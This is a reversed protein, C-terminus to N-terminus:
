PASGLQPFRDMLGVVAFMMATMMQRAAQEHALEFRRETGALAVERHKTYFRREAVLGSGSTAILRIEIDAEPSFTFFGVDPEVFFQTMVGELRVADPGATAPDTSVTFGAVRLMDVLRQAMWIPPPLACHIDATDWGFGNKKMGCRDTIPREDRFPMAVVIHRGRGTQIGSAELPPPPLTLSTLACGSASGALAAACVLLAITRPTM